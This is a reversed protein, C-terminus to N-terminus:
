SKYLPVGPLRRWSRRSIDGCRILLLLFTIRHATMLNYPFSSQYRDFPIILPNEPSVTESPLRDAGCQCLVTCVPM